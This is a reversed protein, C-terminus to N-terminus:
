SGRITGTRTVRAALLFAVVHDPRVDQFADTQPVDLELGGSRNIQLCCLVRSKSSVIIGVVVERSDSGVLLCHDPSPTDAIGLGRCAAFARHLWTQSTATSNLERNFDLWKQIDEPSMGGLYDPNAPSM